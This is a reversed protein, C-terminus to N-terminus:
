GRAVVTMRLAPAVTAIHRLLAMVFLMMGLTELCEQAAATTKYAINELGGNTALYGCILETGLAGGVFIAGAIIFRIATSRPLRLLFPV